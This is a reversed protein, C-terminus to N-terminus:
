ETRHQEYDEDRDLRMTAVSLYQTYMILRKQGLGHFTEMRNKFMQVDMRSKFEGLLNFTYSAEAFTVYKMGSDIMM